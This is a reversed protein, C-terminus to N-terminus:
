DLKEHELFEAYKRAPAAEYKRSPAAESSKSPPVARSLPVAPTPKLKEEPEETSNEDVHMIMLTAALGIVCGWVICATKTTAFDDGQVVAAAIVSGLLGFAGVAKSM